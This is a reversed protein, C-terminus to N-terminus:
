CRFLSRLGCGRVFRIEQVKLVVFIVDVFVVQDGRRSFSGGSRDVSCSVFYVLVGNTVEGHGFCATHIITIKTITFNM